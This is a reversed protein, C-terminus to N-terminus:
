HVPARSQSRSTAGVLKLLGMRFSKLRWLQAMQLRCSGLKPRVLRLILSRIALCTSRLCTVQLWLSLVLSATIAGGIALGPAVFAVLGGDSVSINGQNVVVAGRNSTAEDFKYVGEMFSDNSINTTTAILGGVDVQASPGFFIGAPNVLWVQGNASLSGLVQSADGGTVRNLSISSTGSQNYRVSENSGVSYSRWDIVARASSQNVTVAGTGVGSVVAAGSVVSAGKPGALAAGGVGLFFAVGVAGALMTSFLFRRKEASRWVKEDVGSIQTAIKQSGGTRWHSGIDINIM